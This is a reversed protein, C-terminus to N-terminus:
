LESKNCVTIKRQLILLILLDIGLSLLYSRYNNLGYLRIGIISILPRLLSLVEGLLALFTLKSRKLNDPVKVSTVLQM